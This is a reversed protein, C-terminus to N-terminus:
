SINCRMVRVLFLMMCVNYITMIYIYIYIYLTRENMADKTYILIIMIMIMIMIIIIVISQLRMERTLRTIYLMHNGFIIFVFNSNTCKEKITGIELWKGSLKSFM